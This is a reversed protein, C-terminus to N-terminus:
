SKAYESEMENLKKIYYESLEEALWNRFPVINQIIINFPIEVCELKDIAEAVNRLKQKKEEISWNNKGSVM